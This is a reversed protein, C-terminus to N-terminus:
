SGRLFSDTLPHINLAVRVILSRNANPHTPPVPLLLAQERSGWSGANNELWQRGLQQVTLNIGYNEFVRIAVMEYNHEEDVASMALYPLCPTVRLVSAPQHEFRIGTKQSIMQTTWVARVRDLYDAHSVTM